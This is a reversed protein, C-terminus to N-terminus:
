RPTGFDQTWYTRYTSAPNYAYGVGIQRLRCNLINARHHPSRMWATVVVEPTNQGAAINEAAEAYRYGAARIRVFPSAGNRSYHSFYNHAAMDASHAQAVRTLTLNAVLAPCGHLRRQGNTLSVVRAQFQALSSAATIPSSGMPQGAAAAPGGLAALMALAALVLLAPRGARHRFPAFSRFM